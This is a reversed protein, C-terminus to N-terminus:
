ETALKNLISDVATAKQVRLWPEITRTELDQKLRQTGGGSINLLIWDDKDVEGAEVAQLLSAAAVAGPSMIDIGEISEIMERAAIAAAREVIYTQGNSAKLIDHVGGVQGYAPGKNLLYDSYVEVEESPFDDPVLHDRGAQWANHIPHHEANQSVHQRPAPGEFLGAEILRDAMEHIGIPGPGGGIGQFYHEPLRGMTFAADLMLSGIGDRRAVNHVSGELQWGPLQAAIGKAVTKADFYDGDDVVVLRLSDASNEPRVWIRKAHAQGVVIILPIGDLGCFHSFARGTNGASACILGKAHHDHMRQITTVAEMDKFSGTPCLGGKEPWYGHFTVWLNSLGMADGLAEAKYTLTGAVYENAKSVPLWSLYKWVGEASNHLEFPNNYVARLLANDTHHLTYNDNILVGTKLCKLQYKM